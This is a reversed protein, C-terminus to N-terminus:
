PGTWRGPRGAAEAQAVRADLLRVRLDLADRAARPLIRSYAARAADPRGVKLYAVISGDLLLGPPIWGGGGAVLPVLLDAAAAAGVWDFTGLARHFAVAAAAEPPAEARELFRDVAGYFITDNWGTTGWHLDTAAKSFGTAWTEWSGVLSDGSTLLLFTQLHGLEASWEPYAEPAVGGGATVADRLWAGRQGRVIPTLGRAPPTAYPTPLRVRESLLGTLDLANSAFSFTGTAVEGEFRAREAGLDLYPRYDSNPPVPERAMLPRFVGRDFMLLADLHQPLFEPIGEMLSGLRGREVVSWDPEPLTSARTAIIAVDADGVLYVRYAPFVADLAALVSMFLDDNLEYIQMWQALVGDEALFERTREYFETTFLSATGSVWPNSPEAFVLDFRERRYSFFSKADDFVYSSRPDSFASENAPLFVLSGEVMLPEIEITVLRELRDSTLLAAASIGSGHGINAVNIADPRHALAVLPA